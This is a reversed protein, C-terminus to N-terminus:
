RSWCEKASLSAYQVGQEGLHNLTLVGCADPAQNAQPVAQLAFTNATANTQLQIQYTGGSVELLAPPVQQPNPYAGQTAAARELWQATQMLSLKALQRQGRRLHNQYQPVAWSLVVALMALVLLTEILSLGAWKIPRNASQADCRLGLVQNHGQTSQVELQPSTVAAHEPRRRVNM